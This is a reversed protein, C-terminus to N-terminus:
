FRPKQVEYLEELYQLEDATLTKRTIISDQLREIKNVGVIPSAIKATIWALAVQSMTWGKKNALEEVRLIIQKDSERLKKEFPSGALSKTRETVIGMPRALHGTMLPAYPIVGIGRYNCYPIMELEENRYLLSYEVQVSVFKTWGNLEAVRNMEAFQWARMNSAGIYRVKGGEVLDHLAKMTEEIPTEPDFLHVQLLDIYSTGLRKLSAEVQNFIASRSLGGQNVYDRTPALSWHALSTNINPDEAVIFFVKTAIVLKERPISYKEMFVRIIREAEGNSYVNATDITNIGADWAAKLIPLAREEPLVWPSWRTDGFAMGGLIPVSVRLGSKGLQRYEVQISQSM